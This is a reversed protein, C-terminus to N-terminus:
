EKLVQVRTEDSQIVGCSLISAKMRNYLLSLYEESCRIMWNAMTQRSLNVGYRLFEQEQRYLSLSNVYKANMIAGVLSPTAISGRLLTQQRPARTVDECGRCSYVSVVHEEVEFHSPVFRLVKYTETTIEHLIDNCKKCILEEESLKHEVLIVPFDSLDEEKKGKQKKRCYPTPVVEEYEPEPADLKANLEPENFFITIQECGEALKYKESSAGFRQHQSLRIQEMMNEMRLNSEKIQELLTHCVILLEERTCENLQTNSIENNNTNMM